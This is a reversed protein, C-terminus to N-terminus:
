DDMQDSKLEGEREFKIDKLWFRGMEVTYIIHYYGGDYSRKKGVFRTRRVPIKVVGPEFIFKRDFNVYTVFSIERFENLRDVMGRFEERREAYKSPHVLKLIEDFQYKIGSSTYTGALQVLNLSISTLYSESPKDGVLYIQEVGQGFPVVITKVRNHHWFDYGNGSIVTLFAVIAIFRLFRNEAWINSTQSMFMKFFPKQPGEGRAEAADSM